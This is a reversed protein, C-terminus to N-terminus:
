CVRQQDLIYHDNRSRKGLGTRQKLLSPKADAHDVQTLQLLSFGAHGAAAQDKVVFSCSDVRIVPPHDDVMASNAEESNTSM